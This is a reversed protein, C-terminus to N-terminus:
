EEKWVICKFGNIHTCIGNSMNNVKIQAKDYSTDGVHTARDM